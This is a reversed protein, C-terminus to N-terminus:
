SGELRFVQLADALANLGATQHYDNADDGAKPPLWYPRGIDAAAKEGAPPSIDRGSLGCFPCAKPPPNLPADWPHKNRCRWWDHDAVTFVALGKAAAEHAVKVMNGSSLCVRVETPTYRARLAARVSLGTAYGECVIVRGRAGAQRLRYFNGHVQGGPHFKKEGEATIYEASRVEGAANRLPIVLHGSRPHVLGLEEPFGKAKLYDHPRQECAAMIRDVHAAAADQKHQREELERRLREDREKQARAAKERDVEGPPGMNALGALYAVADPFSQGEHEIVFRIVDGHAGCGFCHYFRKDDNVTFSPSKEQHFPCLGVFERGRRKLNVSGQVVESVPVADRIQDLYERTFQRSM